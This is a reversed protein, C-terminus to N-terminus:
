DTRGRTQGRLATQGARWGEGGNDGRSVRRGRLHARSENTRTSMGRLVVDVVDESGGVEVDEVVSEEVVVEVVSVEVVVVDSVEVVDESVDELVTAEEDVVLLLESVEVEVVEEVGEEVLVEVVLVEDEIGVLRGGVVLSLANVVVSEFPFTAVEVDNTMMVGVILLVLELSLLALPPEFPHTGRKKTKGKRACCQRIRARSRRRMGMMCWADCRCDCDKRVRVLPYLASVTLSTSM